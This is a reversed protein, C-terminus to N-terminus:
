LLHSHKFNFVHLLQLTFSLTVTARHVTGFGGWGGGGLFSPLCQNPRPFHNHPHNGGGPPQSYLVTRGSGSRQSKLHSEWDHHPHWSQPIATRVKRWRKQSDELTTDQAWSCKIWSRGTIKCDCRANGERWVWYEQHLESQELVLCFHRCTKM